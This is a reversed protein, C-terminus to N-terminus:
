AAEPAHAMGAPYVMPTHRLGVEHLGFPSTQLSAVAEHLAEQSQQLPLQSFMSVHLGSLRPMGRQVPSVHTPAPWAQLELASHQLLRGQTGFGAPVGGNM